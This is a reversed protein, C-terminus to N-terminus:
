PFVGGSRYYTIRAFGNTSGIRIMKLNVLEARIFFFQDGDLAPFGVTDSPDGGDYRFRIPGSEFRCLACYSKKLKEPNPLTIVAGVDIEEYDFPVPSDNYANGPFVLM